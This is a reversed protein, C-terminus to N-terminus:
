AGVVVLVVTCRAKSRQSQLLVGGSGMMSSSVQLGGAQVLFASSLSVSMAQPLRWEWGKMENLMFVISSKEM